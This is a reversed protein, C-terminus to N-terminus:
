VDTLMRAGHNFLHSLLYSCIEGQKERATHEEILKVISSLNNNEHLSEYSATEYQFRIMEYRGSVARLNSAESKM